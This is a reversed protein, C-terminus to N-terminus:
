INCVTVKFNGTALLKEVAKPTLAARQENRKCEDRLWLHIM